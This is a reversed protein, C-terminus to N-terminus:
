LGSHTYTTAPHTATSTSKNKQFAYLLLLLGPLVGSRSAAPLRLIGKLAERFDDEIDKEISVKEAHSFNTSTWM